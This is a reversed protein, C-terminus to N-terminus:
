IHPAVIMVSRSVVRARLAVAKAAV